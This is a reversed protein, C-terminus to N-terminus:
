HNKKVIVLKRNTRQKNNKITKKNVKRGNKKVIKKVVKKSLPKRHVVKKVTNTVFKKVSSWGYCYELNIRVHVNGGENSIKERFGKLDKDLLMIGYEPEYVTGNINFYKHSVEIKHLKIDAGCGGKKYACYGIIRLNKMMHRNKRIYGNINRFIFQRNHSDKNSYLPVLDCKRMFELKSFRRPQGNKPKMVSNILLIQSKNIKYGERQLDKRDDSFKRRTFDRRASIDNLPTYVTSKFGLFYSVLCDKALDNIRVVTKTDISSVCYVFSLIITIFLM